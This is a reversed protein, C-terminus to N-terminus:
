LVHDIDSPAELDDIDRKGVRHCAPVARCPRAEAAADRTAVIESRDVGDGDVVARDIDASAKCTGTSGWGVVICAPAPWEHRRHWSDLDNTGVACMQALRDRVRHVSLSRNRQRSKVIPM